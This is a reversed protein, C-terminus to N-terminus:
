AKVNSMAEEVAQVVESKTGGRKIIVTTIVSDTGRHRERWYKLSATIKGANPKWQFKHLVIGNQTVEDDYDFRVGI